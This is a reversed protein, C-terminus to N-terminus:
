YFHVIIEKFKVRKGPEENQQRKMRIIMTGQVESSFTSVKNRNYRNEEARKMGLRVSEANSNEFPERTSVHDNEFLFEKKTASRAILIPHNTDRAERKYVKDSRWYAVETVEASNRSLKDVSLTYLRGSRLRRKGNENEVENDTTETEDAKDTRKYRYTDIAGMIEADFNQPLLALLEELNIKRIHEYSVSIEEGTKISKIRAGGSDLGVIRYPGTYVRALLSDATYDTKMVLEYLFFKRTKGIRYLEKNRKKKMLFKGIKDRFRDSLQKLDEELPNFLESDTILPLSSEVVTGFHVSERSMGYKSILSNIRCIVIPYLADWQPIKFINNELIAARYANKFIRVQSEVANEKQTYPYSTVHQVGYTRLLTETDGRFSQDSDTYLSKPVGQAAFYTRFCQAVEASNKSKMPYFSVYLSFLDAVLLGHTYGKLSKPFYLIDASIGERPKEPKITRERGIKIDRKEENRSQACIVCEKCVDKVTRQARPHYYNAMFEKYTQTISTHLNRRHIYQVVARLIVTPVYIGLYTVGAHHITFKKCVLGGKLTYTNYASPNGVLNERILNINEDEGQMKILTDLSIKRDQILDEALMAQTDNSLNTSGITIDTIQLRPLKSDLKISSKRLIDNEIQRMESMTEAIEKREGSIKVELTGIKIASPQLISLVDRISTLTKDKNVEIWEIPQTSRSIQSPEATHPEIGKAAIQLLPTGEPITVKNTHLNQLTVNCYEETDACLLGENILINSRKIYNHPEMKIAMAANTHIKVGLDARIIQNPNLEIMKQTRVALGKESVMPEYKLKSISEWGATNEEEIRKTLTSYVKALITEKGKDNIEAQRDPVISRIQEIIEAIRMSYSNVNEKTLGTTNMKILEKSAEVLSNRVKRYLPTNKIDTYLKELIEEIILSCERNKETVLRMLAEKARKERPSLMGVSIAGEKEYRNYNRNWQELLTIANYFREESTAGKAIEFWTQVSKPEALKRMKRDYTDMIEPKLPTTLFKFLTERDVSFTDPIPPIEKAWQKSIPHERNLGCNLNDAIARSMVDALVNVDGPLHYIEMNTLTVFNTLYNLTSNLLISHTANRKCYILSRADTFVRIKGECNLIYSAFVKLGYALAISELVYSCKNLDTVNYYKSNVAVLDLKGDRVRFLCASAAVKSADTTLVLDDKKDPITLRLGLGSLQKAITWAEEETDGWHWERKRLIYHLPYLIHKLYPLFMSQYQFACLRSHLEYLSSPKKMNTIASSKLKDMTLLADKTDFEYGLVKIKTTFFTTKEISFKIKAERAAMLCIKLFVHLQEYTDAFIFCDDFYSVLMEAFSEPLMEREAQSLQKKLKEFQPLGFVINMFMKLHYPSSKLGMVLCNFEFALDNVWFATKHRDEERIPIIFFASSIDMSVCVKNKLKHLLTELNVFQVQKPFVLVNNLERFDLCIRYLETKKNKDMMDSKTNQRLEGTQPKPVMVVNSRWESDSESVVGMEMLQKIAKKAFEFRDTPLRRCKQNVIKGPTTELDATYMDTIELDLKSESFRDKFDKLLIKLKELHEAPCHSYDGDELTIKKTLIEEKLEQSNEFLEISDPLTEDKYEQKVSHSNVNIEDGPYAEETPERDVYNQQFIRSSEESDRSIVVPHGERDKACITHTHTNQTEPTKDANCEKCPTKRRILNKPDYKKTHINVKDLKDAELDDAIKIRYTAEETKYAISNKTVSNIENSELLFDAGIICDMDNVMDTVIFNTCSEIIKNKTSRMRFKIHAVGKVSETDTGTATCITMRCKEYKIRFKNIVHLSIVSNAAGTDVLAKINSDGNVGVGPELCLNMYYLKRNVFLKNIKVKKNKKRSREKLDDITRQIYLDRPSGEPPFILDNVLERFLQPQPTTLDARDNNRLSRPKPFKM